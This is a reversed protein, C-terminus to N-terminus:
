SSTHEPSLTHHLYTSAWRAAATRNTTGTKEFIAEVHSRVTPLTIRLRQSIERDTLGQTILSLVERQRESLGVRNEMLTPGFRLAHVVSRALNRPIAAEGDAVVEIVRLLSAVGRDKSVIGMVGKVFARVVADNEEIQEDSLMVVVPTNPLIAQLQDVLNFDDPSAIDLDVLVIGPKWGSQIMKYIESVSGGTRVEPYGSNRAATAIAECLLTHTDAILLPPTVMRENPPAQVESQVM